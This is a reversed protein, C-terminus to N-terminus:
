EIILKQQPKQPIADSDITFSISIKQGSLSALTTEILKKTERQELWNRAFTNAVSIKLNNKDFFEPKSSKLCAEFTATGLEKELLPLAEQWIENFNSNDIINIM